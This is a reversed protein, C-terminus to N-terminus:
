LKQAKRISGKPLRSLHKEDAKWVEAKGTPTFGMTMLWNRVDAEAMGPRVKALDLTASYQVGPKLEVPRERFVIRLFRLISGIM